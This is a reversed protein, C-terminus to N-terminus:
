IASAAINVTLALLAANFIFSVISHALVTRRISKSAVTVDSVQACMGIVFSFYCFDWYDPPEEGPFQMGGGRHHNEDYFEHAYHLAFITHIFAWSTVITLTALILQAPTRGAGGQLEAFIAAISALAAVVTMVLMAIRGEDQLAARRRIHNVDCDNMAQYALGLYLVVGVEWGLLLNTVLRWNTAAVLVALVGLGILASIFLRPRARMVRVVYPRKRLKATAESTM